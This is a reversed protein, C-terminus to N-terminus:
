GKEKWELKAFLKRVGFAAGGAICQLAIFIITHVVSYGEAGNIILYIIEGLLAAAACIFAAATRGPLKEVTTEYEYREMPDGAATLNIVCWLVSGAAILGAAYPLLVYACGLMGPVYLFGCGLVAGFAAACLVWLLAYARKRSKGSKSDFAYMRGTYVYKGSADKQYDNLYERRRSFRKGGNDAM